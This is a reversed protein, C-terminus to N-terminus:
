AHAHDSDREIVAVPLGKFSAGSKKGFFADARSKRDGSGKYPFSEFVPGDHVPCLDFGQYLVAVLDSGM